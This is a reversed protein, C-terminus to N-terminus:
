RSRARKAAYYRRLFDNLVLEQARQSAHLLRNAHMHVLSWAMAALPAERRALEAGLERLHDDRHALLEFGPELDHGADRAPDRALVVDLAAREKVFREGVQKWLVIDARHEAGLSERGDTFVKARADLPLGLADLMGDMGRLALRWRADAGEDGSLLEVIGLVAESDRWFIREALEMGRDGGYRELEREYTDLVLKHAVGAAILPAVARELAPLVRAALHGPEGHMRVRVHPDPDSYRIFFWQGGHADRVVPAIADCLVRDASAEGCYIKAYLWASGPAFRRAIAPAPAPAAPADAPAGTRTFTLVVENTFRGEPGHVPLEDLAPFLEVLRAGGDGAIEDAFAAALLPHALDIPLENDGSAIVVYRPLHRAERLARVADLVKTPAGGAKNAERVAKTLSALERPHLRWSARELVVRGTRVRPLFPANGIAGWSFGPPVGDQAALACLFRYVCLSRLRFNHATTLRPVIERGLRRSRLVIRDGRLSVLLDALQLQRERPAGSSGLFAIEHGRLVPRCLINGIRGENLHVIEAFVAGPALAEEAALHARVHREIEPSAHCFRGLSNAGSPGSLGELLIRPEGRALEDATAALRVVAAFSDPLHLKSPVAMADFDADELVIEGAGAALAEGLRKLMHTDRPLWPVRAAAPAGPFALGALLPSGESGPGRPSEFGIGSEEDLVEALPVERGDWRATFARRFEDLSELQVQTIRALQAVVHAVDGAVRRGIRVVGPKVLDVQFLRSLEIKAPLAELHKAIARYRDPPNGLGTADLEGIARRTDALVGAEREIAAEHLQALMGDIPEPGTVFVGLDAVLLQAAVLEGVFERAEEITIEDDVLAAALEGLRAGPKARELTAELYPTPEVAVLEYRRDKDVIRTTAYRLRGAIPYISSSPRWRLQARASRSLEDALVFLYDNDLRTRRRYEARPALELQTERALAGASVGSFLGFPTARGAMRAVYKVLARETRQGAPSLPKDRWTALSGHLSPSAVFIAEDIAPQAVLAVLFARPDPAAAWEALLTAPLLPTRLVIADDARWSPEPAATM